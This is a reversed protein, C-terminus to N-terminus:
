AIWDIAAGHPDTWATPVGNVSLLFRGHPPPQPAAAAIDPLVGPAENAIWVDCLDRVERAFAAREAPSPLYALVATHFIVRTADRPAEAALAALDHRLDGRVVRPRDRAAVAMAARLGALRNTQEPWVLAELWAAQDPDSADVPALDLGARWAVQPVSAPLPTADDAHCAFVPAGPPGTLVARGYDYGYRDLLLCLGASAGAEILALPPRLRALVPLLTACRAPENTQTARAAMVAWLRAREEHVTRRFQAPDAITGFLRRVAGLLLNPQRKAAPLTALWDVLAADGAVAEALREYIPSRGRAENAAFRRWSARVAEHSM